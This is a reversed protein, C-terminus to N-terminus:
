EVPELSSVWFESDLHCRCSLDSTYSFIYEISDVERESRDTHSVSPIAYEQTESSYLFFCLEDMSCLPELAEAICEISRRARIPKEM